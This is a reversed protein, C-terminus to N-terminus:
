RLNVSESLTTSPSYHSNLKIVTADDHVTSPAVSTSPRPIAAPETHTAPTSANPSPSGMELPKKKLIVRGDDM